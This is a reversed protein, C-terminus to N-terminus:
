GTVKIREKILQLFIDRGKDFPSDKDELLDNFDYIFSFNCYNSYKVAMAHLKHFYKEDGVKKDYAIVVERVDTHKILQLVQWRNLSNGCTAVVVNADGLFTEAQLASKEGEAIIALGSNSIREKVENLGYLNFSLPHNYMKGEIKIPIYKGYKKLEEPTRGLPRGRIGVLNGRVDYHPIIITNRKISHRIGYKKMAEEGIGDAIWEPAPWYIFAELVRPDHAPLVVEIGQPVYKDAVTEYRYRQHQSSLSSLDQNLMDVLKFFLSQYFTDEGTDELEIRKKMLGYINFTEGCESFCRFLKSDKYYILNFGADGEDHNHCITRFAISSDKDIFETGGLQRVAEIIQEEDLSKRFEEPNFM